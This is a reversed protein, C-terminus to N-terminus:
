SPCAALPAPPRRTTRRLECQDRRGHFARYLLMNYLNPSVMSVEEIVLLKLDCWSQQLRTRAEATPVMERNRHEGIGMKAAGHCTSARHSATSINEAQSWKACVIRTSRRGGPSTPPFLFDMTPLVIEQILATKGSGGHGMLLM